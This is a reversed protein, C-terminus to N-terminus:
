LKLMTAKGIGNHGPVGVIEGAAVNHRRGFHPGSAYWRRLRDRHELTRSVTSRLLARRSLNKTQLLPIKPQQIRVFHMDHDVVIMFSIGNLIPIRGYGAHLDHVDFM